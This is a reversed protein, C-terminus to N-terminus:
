IMGSGVFLWINCTDFEFADYRSSILKVEKSIIQKIESGFNMQNEKTVTFFLSCMPTLALVEFTM